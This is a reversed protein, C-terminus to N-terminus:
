WRGPQQLLDELVNIEVLILEYLYSFHYVCFAQM